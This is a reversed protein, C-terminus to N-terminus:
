RVDKCTFYYKVEYRIKFPYSNNPDIGLTDVVYNVGYHPVDTGNAMDLFLRKPAYGTTTTTRYTQVAVMPSIAINYVKNPRLVFYKVGQREKIQALSDSSGGDYDRIYWFKPFWNTPNQATGDNLVISNDPNTILQLKVVCKTIKFADFMAGFESHGLIDDFKFQFQGPHTTSNIDMTAATTFRSFRHVNLSFRKRPLQLMRGSRYGGYRQFVRGAAIRPRVSRSRSMSRSRSRSRRAPMVNLTSWKM